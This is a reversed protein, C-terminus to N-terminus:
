KNHGESKFSPVKNFGKFGLYSGRVISLVAKWEFYISRKVVRAILSIIIYSVAGIFLINVYLDLVQLIHLTTSGTLIVPILYTIVCFNIQIQALINYKSPWIIYTGISFLSLCTIIMFDQM